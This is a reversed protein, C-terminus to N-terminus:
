RSFLRRGSKLMQNLASCSVLRKWEEYLHGDLLESLRVMEDVHMACGGFSM